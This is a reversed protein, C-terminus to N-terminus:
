KERRKGFMLRERVREILEEESIGPNQDRVGDACVRVCVDSMGVALNVRDEPKLRGIREWDEKRLLCCVVLLWM